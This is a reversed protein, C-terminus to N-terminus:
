DVTDAKDYYVTIAPWQEGGPTIESHPLLDRIEIDGLEDLTDAVRRLL